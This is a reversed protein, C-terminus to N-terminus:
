MLGRFVYCLKLFRYIFSRISGFSTLYLSYRLFLLWLVYVQGCYFYKRLHIPSIYCPWRGAPSIIVSFFLDCLVVSIHMLTYSIIFYKFYVTHLYLITICAQKMCNFYEIQQYCNEEQIGNMFSHFTSCVKQALLRAVLCANVRM